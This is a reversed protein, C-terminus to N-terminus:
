PYLVKTNQSPSSAIESESDPQLHLAMLLKLKQGIHEPLECMTCKHCLKGHTETVLL